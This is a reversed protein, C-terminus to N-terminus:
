LTKKLIQMNTYRMWFRFEQYIEDIVEYTLNSSSRYRNELLKMLCVKWYEPETVVGGYKEDFFEKLILLTRKFLIANHKPHQHNKVERFHKELLVQAKKLSEKDSFISFFEIGIDYRCPYFSDSVISKIDKYQPFRVKLYEKFEQQLEKYEPNEKNM